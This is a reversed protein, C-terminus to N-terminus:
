KVLPTLLYNATKGKLIRLFLESQQVLLSLAIIIPFSVRKLRIPELIMLSILEMKLKVTPEGRAVALSPMPCTM